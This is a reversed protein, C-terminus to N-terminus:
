NKSFSRCRYFYSEDPTPTANTNPLRGLPLVAGARASRSGAAGRGAAGGVEAGGAASLGWPPRVGNGDAPRPAGIRPAGGAVLAFAPGCLGACCIGDAM